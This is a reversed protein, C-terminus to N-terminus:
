ENIPETWEIYKLEFENDGIEEDLDYAVGFDNCVFGGMECQNDKDKPSIIGAQGFIQYNVDDDPDDDVYEDIDGMAESLQRFTTSNASLITPYMGYENYFDLASAFIFDGYDDYSAFRYRKPLRNTM